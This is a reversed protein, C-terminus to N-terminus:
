PLSLSLPLPLNMAPVWEGDSFFITYLTFAKPSPVLTPLPTERERRHPGTLENKTEKKCPAFQGKQGENFPRFTRETGILFDPCGMSDDYLVKYPVM